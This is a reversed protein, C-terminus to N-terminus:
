CYTPWPFAQTSYRTYRIPLSMLGFHSVYRLSGVKHELGALKAGEITSARLADVLSVKEEPVFSEAEGPSKRFAAAFMGLLPDSAVVPWDSAFSLRM